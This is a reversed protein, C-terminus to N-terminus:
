LWKDDIVELMENIEQTRERHCVLLVGDADVVVLDQVGMLAILTGKTSYGLCNRADLPVLTTNRHNGERDSPLLDFLANWDGLDDWKFGVPIVTVRRSIEMVAYDVSLSELGEFLGKIKKQNHSRSIKNLVLGLEPQSADIEELITSTKWVFIGSNWYHNGGRLYNQATELDPKERFSQVQFTEFGSLLGLSSGREIYGYGTAPRTAEIGLTVLWNERAVTEAAVLANQFTETNGITHDAPLVAMVEDGFREQLYHAALGICPATNRPAPEVIIQEEKLGPIQEVLLQSYQSSCVFFIDQRSFLPQLREFTQQVLTQQGNIRLFQKPKRSRSAPWFRKGQGGSM